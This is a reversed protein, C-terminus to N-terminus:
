KEPNNPGFHSWPFGARVNGAISNHSHMNGLVLHLNLIAELTSEETYGSNKDKLSRSELVEALLTLGGAGGGKGLSIGFEEKPSLLLYGNEDRGIGWPDTGGLPHSPLSLRDVGAPKPYPSHPPELSFISGNLYICQKEGGSNDILLEGPYEIEASATRATYYLKPLMTLPPNGLPLKAPTGTFCSPDPEDTGYGQLIDRLNLAFAFHYSVQDHCGVNPDNNPHEPDGEPALSVHFVSYQGEKIYDVWNKAKSNKIWEDFDTNNVSFLTTPLIPDFEIARMHENPSCFILNDVESSNITVSETRTSNPKIGDLYNLNIDAYEDDNIDDNNRDACNCGAVYPAQGDVSLNSNAINKLDDFFVDRIDLYTAGFEPPGSLLDGKDNKRYFNPFQYLDHRVTLTYLENPVGNWFIGEDPPHDGQGNKINKSIFRDPTFGDGGGQWFIQYTMGSEADNKHPANCQNAEGRQWIPDAFPTGQFEPLGYCAPVLHPGLNNNFGLKTGNADKIIDGAGGGGGGSVKVIRNQTWCADGTAWGFTRDGVTKDTWWLERCILFVDGYADKKDEWTDDVEILDKWYGCDLSQYYADLAKKMKSAEKDADYDPNPTGDKNKKPTPPPIHSDSIKLYQYNSNIIPSNDIIDQVTVVQRPDADYSLKKIQRIQEFYPTEPLEKGESNLNNKAKPSPAPKSLLGAEYAQEDTIEKIKYRAASKPLSSHPSFTDFNLALKFKLRIFEEDFIPPRPPPLTIKADCCCDDLNTTWDTCKPGNERWEAICPQKIDADFREPLGDYVM